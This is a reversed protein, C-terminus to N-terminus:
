HQGCDVTEYDTQLEQETVQHYGLAAVREVDGAAVDFVVFMIAGGGATGGVTPADSRRQVCRKGTVGIDAVQFRGEEIATAGNPTGPVYGTSGDAFTVQHFNPLQAWVSARDGGGCGAVAMMAAGALVLLANCIPTKMLNGESFNNVSVAIPGVFVNASLECGQVASTFM